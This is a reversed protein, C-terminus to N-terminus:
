THWPFYQFGDSEGGNRSANSVNPDVRELGDPSPLTAM